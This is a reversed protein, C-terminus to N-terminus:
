MSVHQRESQISLRTPPVLGLTIWAGGGVLPQASRYCRMQQWHEPQVQSGM